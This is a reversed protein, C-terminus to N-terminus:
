PSTRGEISAFLPFCLLDKPRGQRVLSLMEPGFLAPQITNKDVLLGAEKMMKFLVQRLKGRTSPTVADLEPHWEAKREFFSDFEERTVASKMHIYNERLVEVAFDAIFEYRRCIALWLLYRQEQQAARMLHELEDDSLMRLRSTVERYTLNLTKQTRAQLLNESIVADRVAGWDGLRLYIETILMSERHLMAGTTFSLSYEKENM